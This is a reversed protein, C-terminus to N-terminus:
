LMLSNSPIYWEQEDQYPQGDLEVWAGRITGDKRYNVEVVTGKRGILDELRAESLTSSPIITVTDNIKM